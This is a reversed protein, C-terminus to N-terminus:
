SSKSVLLIVLAFVASTIMMWNGLSKLYSHDSSSRNFNNMSRQRMIEVDGLYDAIDRCSVHKRKPVASASMYLVNDKRHISDQYCFWQNNISAKECQILPENRYIVEIDHSVRGDLDIKLPMQKSTTTPFDTYINTPVHLQDDREQGSPDDLSYIEETQLINLAVDDNAITIPKEVSLDQGLDESAYSHFDEALKAATTSELYFRMNDARNAYYTRVIKLLNKDSQKGSLDFIHKLKFVDRDIDHRLKRLPAGTEVLDLGYGFDLTTSHELDGAQKKITADFYYDKGDHEIHVVVHNFHYLSPNLRSIKIGYDTNVLTLCAKVNIQNLLIVLLNSKDKCDGYRKTLTHGAPKPTHTFIGHNEGKYRIENQVFRVISIIKEETNQGPKLIGLEAINVDGELAGHTTYYDFLYASLEEWKSCTTALLFDPWLWVPTVDEFPMSKLDTFERIFTEAPKIYERTSGHEGDRYTCHQVQIINGSANVIRIKQLFVPCNWNLWFVSNYHRGVLPHEGARAIDTAQYDIIDGSRLDDISLSVTQRNDTVHNELSKERQVISINEENLVSFRVGDRIIDVAHFILQHNHDQLEFLFLSADEIRSADNIKEITRKYVHISDSEVREQCDLLFYYYPSSDDLQRSIDVDDSVVWEGAPAIQYKDM